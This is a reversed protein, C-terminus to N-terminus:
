VTFTISASLGITINEPVYPVRPLLQSLHLGTSTTSSPILIPPSYQCWYFKCIVLCHYCICLPLQGVYNVPDTITYVYIVHFNFGLLCVYHLRLPISWPGISIVSLPSVRLRSCTFYNLYKPVKIVSSTFPPFSILVRILM